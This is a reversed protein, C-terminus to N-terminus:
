PIGGPRAVGAGLAVPRRWKTTKTTSALLIHGGRLTAGEGAFFRDRIASPGLDEITRFGMIRLMAHLEGTEFHSRYVLAGPVPPNVYDFVAHAGGPLGAIFELTSFVAQKTLYHVVGLWTFFTQKGPDFGARALGDGLAEREFDVPAFALNRPIPIAVEDLRQRKWAQASPNDVEFIRLGDGLRNRYAYTDLGAGLVVLQRVGRVFAAGLADEAFRSRAAIFLRLPRRGSSNLGAELAAPADAGLIRRALPDSFVRGGDLVMHVARHIAAGTATQIPSAAMPQLFGPRPARM